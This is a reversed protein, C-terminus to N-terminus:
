RSAKSVLLLMSFLSCLLAAPTVLWRKEKLCLFKLEMIGRSISQASSPNFVLVSLYELFCRHAFGWILTSHQPYISRKGGWYM